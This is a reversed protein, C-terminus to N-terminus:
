SEKSSEFIKTIIREVDDIDYGWSGSVEEQYHKCEMKLSDLIKEMLDAKCRQCLSKNQQTM